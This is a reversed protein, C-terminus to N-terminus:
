RSPAFPSPSKEWRAPLSPSTCVSCCCSSREFQEPSTVEDPVRRWLLRGLRAGAPTPATRFAAWLVLALVPVFTLAMWRPVPEAAETTAFPLMGELRLDVMAPLRGYVVLSAIV